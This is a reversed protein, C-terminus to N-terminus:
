DTDGLAETPPLADRTARRLVKGAHSRRLEPVIFIRKPTKPGSLRERAWNRLVVPDGITGPTVEIAAVVEEGWDPHSMGFVACDQVAPHALLV